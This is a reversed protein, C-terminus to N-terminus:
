NVKKHLLEEEENAVRLQDGEATFPAISGFSCVIGNWVVIDTSLFSYPNYNAEM